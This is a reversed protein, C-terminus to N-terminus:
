YVRIKARAKNLVPGIVPVGHLMEAAAELEKKRTRGEEAVLLVADLQPSFALVDDAALLPPLDFLVIRAPYRTKVEEVLQNMRPSSLMESSNPLPQGAPLVVLRPIGPNFLLGRLDANSILYDSLGPREELGFARHVGPRRLDLDALMVTHNVDMALSIALNIATLTKGEAMGPSTIGLSTWGSRRMALLVQTRLQRYASMAPGADHPHILRNKRFVEPRIDLVRTQTYAFSSGGATGGRAERAAASTAREHAATIITVAGRESEGRSDSVPETQKM